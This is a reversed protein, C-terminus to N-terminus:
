VKKSQILLTLDLKILTVKLKKILNTKFDQLMIITLFLVLCSCYVLVPLRLERSVAIIRFEFIDICM